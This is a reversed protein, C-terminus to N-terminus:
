SVFKQGEGLMNSQGMMIFVRVPKVGSPCKPPSLPPLIPLTHPKVSKPNCAAIVRSSTACGAKVQAETKYWCNQGDFVGSACGPREACMICCSEQTTAVGKDRSGKGYDCKPTYTCNDATVAVVVFVFAIVHFIM